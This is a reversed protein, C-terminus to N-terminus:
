KTIYYIHQLFAFPPTKIFNIFNKAPKTNIVKPPLMTICDSKPEEAKSAKFIPNDYVNPYLGPVHHIIQPITIM